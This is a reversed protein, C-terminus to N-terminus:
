DAPSPWDAPWRRWHTPQVDVVCGTRMNIWRGNECRCPFELEHFGDRDLVALIVDCDDPIGNFSVIFHWMYPM